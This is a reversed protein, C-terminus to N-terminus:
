VGFLISIAPLYSKFDATTAKTFRSTYFVVYAWTQLSYPGDRSVEAFVTLNTIQFVRNKTLM